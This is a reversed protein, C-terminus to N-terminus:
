RSVRRQARWVDAKPQHQTAWGDVVIPDWVATYLKAFENKVEALEKMQCAVFVTSLTNNSPPKRTTRFAWRSRDTNPYSQDPLPSQVKCTGICTRHHAHSFYRLSQQCLYLASCRLQIFPSGVARCRHTFHAHTVYALLATPDSSVQSHTRPVCLWPIM